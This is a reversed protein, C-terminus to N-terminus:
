RTISKGLKALAKRLADQYWTGLRAYLGYSLMSVKWGGSALSVRISGRLKGTRIPVEKQLYRQIITASKPDRKIRRGMRRIRKGARQSGRESVTIPM